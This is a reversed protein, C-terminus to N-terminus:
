RTNTRPAPLPIRTCSQLLSQWGPGCRMNEYDSYATLITVKGSRERAKALRDLQMIFSPLNMGYDKVGDVVVVDLERFEEALADHEHRNEYNCLVAVLESFDYMKANYGRDIAAKAVLAGLLSKGSRNEGVFLLSYFTSTLAARYRVSEGRCVREVHKLYEQMFNGIQAKVKAATGLDNNNADQKTNWDRHISKNFFVRPIGAEAYLRKRTAERECRCQYDYGNAGKVFGTGQCYSCAGSDVEVKTADALLESLFDSM